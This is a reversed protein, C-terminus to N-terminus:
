RDPETLVHRRKQSLWILFNRTVMRFYWPTAHCLVPIDGRTGVVRGVACCTTNSPSGSLASLVQRDYRPCTAKYRRMKYQSAVGGLDAVCGVPCSEKQSDIEATM